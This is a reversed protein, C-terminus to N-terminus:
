VVCRTRHLFLITYAVGRLTRTKQKQAPNTPMTPFGIRAVAALIREESFTISDDVHCGSEVCFSVLRRELRAMVVLLYQKQYGLDSRFTSERTYKAKLYKIQVM